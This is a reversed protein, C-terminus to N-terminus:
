FLSPDLSTIIKFREDNMNSGKAGSRCMRLMHTHPLEKAFDELHSLTDDIFIINECPVPEVLENLHSTVVDVKRGQEVYFAKAFYQGINCGFFKPEQIERAGYTVLYLKHGKDVATTLFGTVDTYLFNELSIMPVDLDKDLMFAREIANYFRETDFVTRDFDLFIHKM